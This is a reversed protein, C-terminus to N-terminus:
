VQMVVIAGATVSVKYPAGIAATQNIEIVATANNRSPGSYIYLNAKNLSTVWINIM